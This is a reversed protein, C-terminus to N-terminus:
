PSPPTETSTFVKSTENARASVPSASRQLSRIALVAILGILLLIPIDPRKFPETESMTFGPLARNGGSVGGGNRDSNAAFLCLEDGGAPARHLRDVAPLSRGSPANSVALVPQASQSM